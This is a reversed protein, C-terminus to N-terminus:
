LSVEQNSLLLSADWSRGTVNRATGKSPTVLSPNSVPVPATFWQCQEIGGNWMTAAAADPIFWVPLGFIWGPHQGLIELPSVSIGMWTNMRLGFLNRPAASVKRLSLSCLNVGSVWWHRSWRHEVWKWSIGPTKRGNRRENIADRVKVSNAM